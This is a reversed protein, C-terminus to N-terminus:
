SVWRIQKSSLALISDEAFQQTVLNLRNNIIKYENYLPNNKFSYNKDNLIASYLDNNAKILDRAEYIEKENLYIITDINHLHFFKRMDANSKIYNKLSYINKFNLDLLSHLITKYNFNSLDPLRIYNTIKINYKYIFGSQMNNKDYIREQAQKLTGFHFGIDNENYKFHKIPNACFTGHYYINEM